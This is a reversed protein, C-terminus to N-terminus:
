NIAQQRLNACAVGQLTGILAFDHRILKHSSKLSINLFPRYVGIRETSYDLKKGQAEKLSGELGIGTMWVFLNHPPLRQHQEPYSSGALLM